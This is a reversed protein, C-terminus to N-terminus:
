KDKEERKVSGFYRLVAERTAKKRSNSVPVGEGNSLFIENGKMSKVYALNVLFSNHCRVFGDGLKEEFSSLKEACEREEMVCHFKTKRLNRELYFIEQHYLRTQEGRRKLVVFPKERM